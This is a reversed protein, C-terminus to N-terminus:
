QPRLEVVLSDRYTPGANVCFSADACPIDAEILWMRARFVQGIQLCPNADCIEPAAALSDEDDGDAYRVRCVGREYEIAHVLASLQRPKLKAQMSAAAAPPKVTCDAEVAPPPAHPAPVNAQASSGSPLMAAVLPQLLPREDTNIRIETVPASQSNGGCAALCFTTVVAPLRLLDKM